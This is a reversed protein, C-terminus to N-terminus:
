LYVGFVYDGLGIDVPSHPRQVQESEEATHGQESFRDLPAGPTLPFDRLELESPSVVPDEASDVWPLVPRRAGPTISFDRILLELPDVVPDQSVMEVGPTFPSDDLMYRAETFNNAVIPPFVVAEPTAGRLGLEYEGALVACPEPLFRAIALPRQSFYAPMRRVSPRRALAAAAAISMPAIPSPPTTRIGQVATRPAPEGDVDGEEEHFYSVQLQALAVAIPSYADEYALDAEPEPQPSHSRPPPVWDRQFIQPLPSKLPTGQVSPPFLEAPLGLGILPKMEPRRASSVRADARARASSVAALLAPNVPRSSPAPPSPLGEPEYGEYSPIWAKAFRGNPFLRSASGPGALTAVRTFSSTSAM